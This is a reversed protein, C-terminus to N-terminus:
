LGSRPAFGSHQSPEIPKPTIPITSNTCGAAIELRLGVALEWSYAVSRASYGTAWHLDPKALFQKWADPRSSPVYISNM